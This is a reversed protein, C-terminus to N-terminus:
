RVSKVKFSVDLPDGRFVQGPQRLPEVEFELEQIRQRLLQNEASIQNLKRRYEELHQRIGSDRGTEPRHQGKSSLALANCLILAFLCGIAIGGIFAVADVSM